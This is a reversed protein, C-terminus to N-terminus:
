RRGPRPLTLMRRTRISLVYKFAISLIRSRVASAEPRFGAHILALVIDDRAVFRKFPLNFTNSRVPKLKQAGADNAICIIPIQFLSTQRNEKSIVVHVKTKKILANLAGVGGRDGASMGDVEDMILCTKDTITVGLANTAQRVRREAEVGVADFVRVENGGMWGDLSLNNVNMGSQLGARDARADAANSASVEVLKKSRADSANLEIPTFGELKAVLHASTTKGIGPPGSILVARFINMGNKGPKKFGSKLSSSRRLTLSCRALYVPRSPGTTCGNSYSRWKVRTGACRRSRGLRMGRRGCSRRWTRRRVPAACADVFLGLSARLVCGGAKAEKADRKERSELAKAAAKIAETDKDMKKRTKDDLAAGGPGGPAV